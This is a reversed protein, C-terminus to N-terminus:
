DNELLKKLLKFDFSPNVDKHYFDFNSKSVVGKFYEVGDQKVNHEITVKPIDHEDCLEKLLNALSKIQKEEYLDWFFHDRWKKNFVKQKYIDGIWNIYTDDMPNKKFWGLNELAVIIARKDIDEDEMFESYSDTKLIKFIEGDKTIVFHPLYPNKKNYRYKLSNIYDVHNRKTEALIIQTKKVGEGKLKFDILEYLNVM